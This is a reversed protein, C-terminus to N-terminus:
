QLACILLGALVFRNKPHGTKLGELIIDISRPDDKEALTQYCLILLRSNEEPTLEFANSKESVKVNRPLMSRFRIMETSKRMAIWNLITQEYPGEQKMRLLALSCYCRILPAGATQAKHTLLAIAQPTHLNELLAVLMPILEGQRADFIATALKLFDGEPLELSLRLLHERFDLSLTVLDYSNEAQHQAASPIVKWSILSNGLSYHPQFGLDRSDRIIFEKLFRLSRPDRRALLASAANFRLQRDEEQAIQFLLDESGPIEALMNIASLDGNKALEFIEKKM